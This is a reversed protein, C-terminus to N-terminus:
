YDHLYIADDFKMRGRMAIEVDEQAVPLLCDCALPALACLVALFSGARRRWARRRRAYRLDGAVVFVLPETLGHREYEGDRTVEQRAFRPPSPHLACGSRLSRRRM